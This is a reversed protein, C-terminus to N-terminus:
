LESYEPLNASHISLNMRPPTGAEVFIHFDGHVSMIAERKQHKGARRRVIQFIFPKIHYVRYRRKDFRSFDLNKGDIANIRFAPEVAPHVRMMFSNTM